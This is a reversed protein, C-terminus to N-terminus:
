TFSMIKTEMLRGSNQKEASAIYKKRGKNYRTPEFIHQAPDLEAKATGRQKVAKRLKQPRKEFCMAAKEDVM